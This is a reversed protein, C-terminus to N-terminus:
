EAWKHSFATLEIKKLKCYLEIQRRLAFEINDYVRKKFQTSIANESGIDASYM